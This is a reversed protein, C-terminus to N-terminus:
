SKKERLIQIIKSKQTISLLTDVEDSSPESVFSCLHIYNSHRSQPLILIYVIAEMQRSFISLYKDASM